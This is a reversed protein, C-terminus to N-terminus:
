CDNGATTIHTARNPIFSGKIFDTYTDTDSVGVIVTVAQDGDCFGYYVHKLHLSDQM